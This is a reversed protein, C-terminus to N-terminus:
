LKNIERIIQHKHERLTSLHTWVTPSRGMRNSVYNTRQCYKSVIQKVRERTIQFKIGVNDLTEGNLVKVVIKKNRGKKEKNRNPDYELM